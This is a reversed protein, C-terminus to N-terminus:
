TPISKSPAAKCANLSVGEGVIDAYDEQLHTVKQTENPQGMHMYAICEFPTFVTGDEGRPYPAKTPKKFIDPMCAQFHWSFPLINPIRPDFPNGISDISNICTHIPM